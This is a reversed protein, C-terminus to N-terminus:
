LALSTSFPISSSEWDTLYSRLRKFFWWSYSFLLLLANRLITRQNTLPQLSIDTKVNSSYQLIIASGSKRKKKKRPVIKQYGESNRLKNKRLVVNIRVSIVMYSMMSLFCNQWNTVNFSNVCVNAYLLVIDLDIFIYNRLNSKCCLADVVTWSFFLCWRM